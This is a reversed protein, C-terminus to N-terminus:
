SYFTHMAKYNHSSNKRHSFSNSLSSNYQKPAEPWATICKTKNRSDRKGQIPDLVFSPHTSHKNVQMHFHTHSCLVLHQHAQLCQITWNFCCQQDASPWNWSYHHHCQIYLATYDTYSAGQTQVINNEKPIRAYLFLEVAWNPGLTEVLYNCTCQENVEDGLVDNTELAVRNIIVVCSHWQQWWTSTCPWPSPSSHPSAAWGVVCVKTVADSSLVTLVHSMAELTVRITMMEVWWIVDCYLPLIPWTYLWMVLYMVTGIACTTLWLTCM